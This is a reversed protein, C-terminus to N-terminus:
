QLTLTSTKAFLEGYWAFNLVYASYITSHKMEPRTIEERDWREALQMLKTTPLWRFKPLWLKFRYQLQKFIVLVCLNALFASFVPLTTYWPLLENYALWFVACVAFGFLCALQIHPRKLEKLLFAIINGTPPRIAQGRYVLLFLFVLLAMGHLAIIGCMITLVTMYPLGGNVSALIITQSVFISLLLPTKLTALAIGRMRLPLTHAIIVGVVLENTSYGISYFVQGLSLMGVSESRILLVIGLLISGLAVLFGATMGIAELALGIGLGTLVSAIDAAILATPRPADESSFTISPEANPLWVTSHFFSIACFHLWSSTTLSCM